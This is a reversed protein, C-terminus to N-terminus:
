SRRSSSGSGPLNDGRFNDTQDETKQPPMAAQVLAAIRPSNKRTQEKFYEVIALPVAQLQEANWASVDPKPDAFLDALFRLAQDPKLAGFQELAGVQAVTLPRTRYAVGNITLTLDWPLLAALASDLNVNM